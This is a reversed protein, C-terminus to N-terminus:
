HTWFMSWTMYFTQGYWDRFSKSLPALEDHGSAYRTYGEWAHLFEQKVQEAIKGKDIAQACAENRPFIM